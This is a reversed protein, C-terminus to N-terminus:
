TTSSLVKRHFPQVRLADLKEGRKGNYLCLLANEGATIVADRTVKFVEAQQRVFPSSKINKLSVSKGIGFV